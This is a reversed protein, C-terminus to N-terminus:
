VRGPFSESLVHTFEGSVAVTDADHLKKGSFVVADLLLLSGADYFLKKVNGYNQSMRKKRIPVNQLASRAGQQVGPQNRQNLFKQFGHLLHERVIMQIKGKEDHSAVSIQHGSFIGAKM